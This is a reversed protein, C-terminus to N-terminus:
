RSQKAIRLKTRFNFSFSIPLIIIDTLRDLTSFDRKIMEYDRNLAEWNIKFLKLEESKHVVDDRLNSENTKASLLEKQITSYLSM